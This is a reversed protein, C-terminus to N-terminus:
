DEQDWMEDDYGLVQAADQQEPSLHKWRKKMIRTDTGDNWKQENYHLVQAAEKAEKILM